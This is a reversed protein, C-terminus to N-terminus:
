EFPNLESSFDSRVFHKSCVQAAKPIRKGIGCKTEWVKRRQLPDDKAPFFHMSIHDRSLVHNNLVEDIHPLPM